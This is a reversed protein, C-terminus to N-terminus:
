FCNDSLIPRVDRNFEIKTPLKTAAHLPMVVHAAGLLLAIRLTMPKMVLILACTRRRVNDRCVVTVTYKACEKARRSVLFARGHRVAVHRLHGSELSADM